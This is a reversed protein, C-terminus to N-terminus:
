IRHPLVNIGGFPKKTARPHVKAVVIKRIPDEYTDTMVEQVWSAADSTDGKFCGLNPDFFYTHGSFRSFLKGTTGSRWFALAHGGGGLFYIGVSYGRRKEDMFAVVGDWDPVTQYVDCSLEQVGWSFDEISGKTKSYWKQLRIAEARCQQELKMAGEVNESKNRYMLGLWYAVLQM